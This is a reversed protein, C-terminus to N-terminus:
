IHCVFAKVPGGGEQQAEVRLFDNGAKEAAQRGIRPPHRYVTKNRELDIQKRSFLDSLREYIYSYQPKYQPKNPITLHVMAYNLSLPPPPPPCVNYLCSSSVGQQGPGTMGHGARHLDLAPLRSAEAVLVEPRGALQVAQLTAGAECPRTQNPHTCVCPCM